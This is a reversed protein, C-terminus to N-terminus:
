VCSESELEAGEVQQGFGFNCSYGYVAEEPYNPEPTQTSGWRADWLYLDRRNYQKLPLHQQNINYSSALPTRGALELCNTTKDIDCVKKYIYMSWRTYVVGVNDMYIFCIMVCVAFCGVPKRPHQTASKPKCPHPHSYICVFWVVFVLVCVRASSFGWFGRRSFRERRGPDSNRNSLIYKYIYMYRIYRANASQVCM